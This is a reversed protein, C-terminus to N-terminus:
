KPGGIGSWICTNRTTNDHRSLNCFLFRFVFFLIIDFLYFHGADEFYSVNWRSIELVLSYAKPTCTKKSAFNADFESSDECNPYKM